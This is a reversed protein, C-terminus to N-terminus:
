FNKIELQLNPSYYVVNRCSDPYKSLFHIKEILKIKEEPSNIGFPLHLCQRISDMNKRIIPFDSSNKSIKDVIETGGIIEMELLMISYKILEYHVPMKIYLTYNEKLDLFIKAIYSPTSKDYFSSSTKDSIDLEIMKNFIWIHEISNDLPIFKNSEIELKNTGYKNNYQIPFWSPIQNSIRFLHLVEHVFIDLNFISPNFEILPLGNVIGCCSKLNKYGTNQPLEEVYYISRDFHKTISKVINWIKRPIKFNFSHRQLKKKPEQFIPNFFM